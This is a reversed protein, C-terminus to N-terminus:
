PGMLGYLCAENAQVLGTLVTRTPPTIKRGADEMLRSYGQPTLLSSM